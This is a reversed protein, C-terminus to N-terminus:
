TQDPEGLAKWEAVADEFAGLTELTQGNRYHLIAVPKRHGANLAPNPTGGKTIANVETLDYVGNIDEFM